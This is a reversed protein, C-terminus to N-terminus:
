EGNRNKKDNAYFGTGNFSVGSFNYSRVLQSGCGPCARPQDTENIGHELTVKIVCETCDYKYTPM